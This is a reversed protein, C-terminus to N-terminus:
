EFILSVKNKSDLNLSYRLYGIGVRSQNAETGSVSVTNKVSQDKLSYKCMLTLSVVEVEFSEEPMKVVVTMYLFDNDVSRELESAKYSHKFWGDELTYSTPLIQLM